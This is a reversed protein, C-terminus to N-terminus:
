KPNGTKERIGALTGMGVLADVNAEDSALAQRFLAEAKPYYSSDGTERAKQLYAHGLQAANRSQTLADGSRLADQLAAISRDVGIVKLGLTKAARILPLQNDGAGLSLYYADDKPRAM